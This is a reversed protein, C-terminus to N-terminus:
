LAMLKHKSYGTVTRKFCYLCKSTSFRLCAWNGWDLQPIQMIEQYMKESGGLKTFCKGMLCFCVGVRHLEIVEWTQMFLKVWDSAVLDVVVPFLTLLLMKKLLQYGWEWFFLALSTVELLALFWSFRVKRIIAVKIYHSSLPNLIEALKTTKLKKKNTRKPKTTTKNQKIPDSSHSFFCCLPLFINLLLNSLVLRPVVTIVEQQLLCAM